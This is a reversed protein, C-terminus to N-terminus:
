RTIVSGSASRTKESAASAIRATGPGATTYMTVRLMWWPRPAAAKENGSVVALDPAGGTHAGYELRLTLSVVRQLSGEALIVPHLNLAVLRLDRFIVPRGLLAPRDFGAAAAAARAAPDAPDLAIRDGDPAALMGSEPRGLAPRADELPRLEVSEVVLRMAGVAPVELWRGERPLLPLGESEAENVAGELLFRASGDRQDLRWLGGPTWSLRTATAGM